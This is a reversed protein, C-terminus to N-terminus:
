FATLLGSLNVKYKSQVLAEAYITYLFLNVILIQIGMNSLSYENLLIIRCSLEREYLKRAKYM